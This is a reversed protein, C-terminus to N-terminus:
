LDEWILGFVLAAMGLLSPLYRLLSLDPGDAFLVVDVYLFANGIALGAFCLASWFLLRVRSRSYGRFLFIACALATLTCLIFVAAAMM